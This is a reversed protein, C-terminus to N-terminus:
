AKGEEEQPGLQSIEINFGEIENARRPAQAAKVWQADAAKTTRSKAADLLTDADIGM